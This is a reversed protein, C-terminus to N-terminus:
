QQPYRPDNTTFSPLRGGCQTELMAQFPLISIGSRRLLSDSPQIIHQERTVYFWRFTPDEGPAYLDKFRGCVAPEGEYVVLRMNTFETEKPFEMLERIRSKGLELIQHQSITCTAEVCVVSSPLMNPTRSRPPGCTALLLMLSLVAFRM